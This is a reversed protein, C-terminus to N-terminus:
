IVCTNYFEKGYSTIDVRKKELSIGVANPVRVKYNELKYQDNVINRLQAYHTDEGYWVGAPINILGLRSLNDLALSINNVHGTSFLNCNNAVNITLSDPLDLLVDIMPRVELSCIHKFYSAEDPSLQKITEVYAPHVSNKTDLNMSKALLNAYLDRLEESDMAYSIAQLTPVGIYPDPTVIKEESVHELKQALLKKTEALRYQREEIWCELPVLAANITRPIISLAKGSEKASPQVVDAYLDPMTEIAKGTANLLNDLGKSM